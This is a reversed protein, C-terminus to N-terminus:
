LIVMAGREGVEFDLYIFWSMYLSYLANTYCMYFKGTYFIIYNSSDVTSSGTM